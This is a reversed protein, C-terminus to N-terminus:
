YVKFVGLHSSINFDVYENKIPVKIWSVSNTKKFDIVATPINCSHGSM